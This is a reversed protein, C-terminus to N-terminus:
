HRGPQRQGPYGTLRLTEHRTGHRNHKSSCSGLIHHLQLKRDSCKVVSAKTWSHSHAVSLRYKDLLWNRSIGRLTKWPSRHTLDVPSPIKCATFCLAGSRQRETTLTARDTIHVALVIKFIDLDKFHRILRNYLRPCLFALQPLIEKNNM